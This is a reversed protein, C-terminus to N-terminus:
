LGGAWAAIRRVCCKRARLPSSREGTRRMFWLTRLCLVWASLSAALLRAFARSLTGLALRVRWLAAARGRSSTQPYSPTRGVAGLHTRPDPAAVGAQVSQRGRASKPVKERTLFYLRAHFHQRLPVAVSPPLSMAEGVIHLFLLLYCICTEVEDPRVAM